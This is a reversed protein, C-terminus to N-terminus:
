RSYNVGCYGCPPPLKVGYFTHQHKLDSITYAGTDELLDGSSNMRPVETKQLFDDFDDIVEVPFRTWCMNWFMAFVSASEYNLDDV